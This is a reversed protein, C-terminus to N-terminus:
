KMPAGSKKLEEVLYPKLSKSALFKGEFYNYEKNQIKTRGDIVEWQDHNGIFTFEYFAYKIEPITIRYVIKYDKSNVLKETTYISCVHESIFAAEKSQHGSLPTNERLSKDSARWFAPILKEQISLIASKSTMLPKSETQKCSLLVTSILIVLLHPLKM